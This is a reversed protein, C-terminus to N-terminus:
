LTPSLEVLMNWIGRSAKVGHQHSLNLSFNFVHARRAVDWAVRDMVFVVLVRIWSSRDMVIDVAVFDSECIGFLVVGEGLSNHNTIDNCGLSRPVILRRRDGSGTGCNILGNVGFSACLQCQRKKRVVTCNPNEQPSTLGNQHNNKCYQRGGRGKCDDEGCLRCCRRKRMKGETADLPNSGVLIGGVIQYDSTNMAQVPPQPLPCPLSAETWSYGNNQPTLAINLENLKEIGDRANKVCEEVRRTRSWTNNYTRLQSPLKPMINKGDVFKCWYESALNYDFDGKGELVFRAFAKREDKHVFPLFPLTTGMAKAIYNQERTLKVPGIKECCEQLKDHLGKHHLAITDFTENTTIYDSANSWHPFLQIGHNDRVLNQLQDIVWTNFHGVVPFGFRRRESCKHNHRHRREALLCDSMEVGTSWNRFTVSLHKHYAETRNTGRSCEILELGYKNKMVEGNFGIRKTYFEVDPPDSYYGNLIEALLNNAKKWATKNFLPQKTESDIINGFLAFVARVRWYLIKPAPVKREVCDRFLRAKYYKKAQIQSDSLGQLRMLEELEKM